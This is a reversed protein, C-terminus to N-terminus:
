YDKSHVFVSEVQDGMVSLDIGVSPFSMMGDSEVVGSDKILAKIQSPKFLFLNKHQLVPTTDKFLEVAEVTNEVTYYVHCGGFADTTNKSFKSKRFEKFEGMKSRVSERDEGFSINGVREFPVIFFMAM